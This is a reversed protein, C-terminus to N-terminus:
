LSEWMRAICMEEDRRAEIERIQHGRSVSKLVDALPIQMSSVGPDNNIWENFEHTLKSLQFENLSGYQEFVRRLIAEDHPSLEDDRVDQVLCLDHGDRKFHSCWLDEDEDLEVPWDDANTKCLDYIRTLVPGHKMAWPEDGTVPFGVERLSERDAIYLLKLLKMVNMRDANGQRIMFAAVQIAKHIDFQFAM